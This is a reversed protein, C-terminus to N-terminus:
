AATRKKRFLGFLGSVLYYYLPAFCFSYICSLLEYRILIGGPHDIGKLAVFFLWHTLGFLLLWVGTVFLCASFTRRLLFSALTSSVFALICFMIAYYGDMSPSAVDWLLGGLVGFFMAAINTEQMAIAAILPVLLWAQATGIRPPFAFRTHQALATLVILLTFVARRIIKERDLTLRM